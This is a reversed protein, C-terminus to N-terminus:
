ILRCLGRYLLNETFQFNFYACGASFLLYPMLENLEGIVTRLETLDNKYAYKQAWHTWLIVLPVLAVMLIGTVLLTRMEFEIQSFSGAKLLQGYLVGAILGLPIALQAWL